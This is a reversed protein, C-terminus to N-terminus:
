LLRSLMITTPLFLSSFSKLFIGVCKPDISKSLSTLIVSYSFDFGQWCVHSCWNFLMYSFSFNWHRSLVITWCPNYIFIFASISRSAFMPSHRWLSPAVLSKKSSLIVGHYHQSKLVTLFIFLYTVIQHFINAICRDRM